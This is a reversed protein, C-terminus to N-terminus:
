GAPSESFSPVSMVSAFVMIFSMVRDWYNGFAKLLLTKLLSREVWLLHLDM